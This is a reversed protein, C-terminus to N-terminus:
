SSPITKLCKNIINFLVAVDIPKSVFGDCGADKCKEEEDNYAHATQIIVPLEPKIAKIKKAAEFGNMEPLQLDMLVVDIYDYIECYEVAQKGNLAWIVNINTKRSLVLEIYRFSIEDDETVLVTYNQWNYEM